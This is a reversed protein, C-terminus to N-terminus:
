HKIQRVITPDDIATDDALLLAKSLIIALTGESGVLLRSLNFPERGPVFEDLNYGGVRRLIRPYRREIEAAHEMGLRRVVRYCSGELDAQAGKADLQQADLPCLEAVSGDSLLATVALVYDLTKGYVVSRTGSSNNAIM